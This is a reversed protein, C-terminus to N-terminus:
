STSCCSLAELLSGGYLDILPKLASAFFGSMPDSVPRRLFARAIRNAVNSFHRRRLNLAAEDLKDLGRAAIVVDAEERAIPGILDPIYRPDHQGDGDMLVICRAKTTLM